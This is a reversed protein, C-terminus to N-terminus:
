WISSISPAVPLKLTEKPRYCTPSVTILDVPQNKLHLDQIASYIKQHGPKYFDSADLQDVVADWAERDLMLSGIISLEAEINQPPLRGAM